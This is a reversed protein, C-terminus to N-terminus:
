KTPRRSDDVTFLSDPLECDFEFDYRVTKTERGPGAIRIVRPYWFGQPSERFDEMTLTHAAHGPEPKTGSPLNSLEVRVVAYGKKPDVYYWEHGVQPEKTALVATRKIVVWGPAEAPKSDFTFSMWSRPSLDPFLLSAIKVAGALNMIGLGEGSMLDQPTPNRSLEWRPEAGQDHVTNHWVATGDCVLLPTPQKKIPDNGDPPGYHDVRWRSGKRRVLASPHALVNNRVLGVEDLVLMQFDGIRARSDAMGRVVRLAEASPIRDDVRAEKPVGLAYIDTPGDDPYDFAWTISKTPDNPSAFKIYVPLGTKPDVRLTAQSLEGRYLTLRFEVWTKGGETVERRQQHIIKETGFLWPGITRQDRSLAEMPLVKQEDDEGLPLRTICNTALTYEHKVQERGDFYRATERLKSAWIRRGPSLWMTGRDGNAFITTGRIWDQSLVAKAVDTWGVSPKPFLAVSFLAALCLLAAAGAIAATLRRRGIAPATVLVPAKGATAGVTSSRIEDLARDAVGPLTRLMAGLSQLRDELRTQENM